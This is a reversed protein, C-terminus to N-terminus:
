KSFRITDGKRIGNKFFWGKKMELAYLIPKPPSHTETSLPKMDRIEIIRGNKDIFAISLPIYTNKMWFSHYEEKEFIFLMGENDGLDKRWMLGRARQEPTKAVEVWIEKDKIYLPIRLISQSYVFPIILVSSWFFIIKIRLVQYIKNGKKM